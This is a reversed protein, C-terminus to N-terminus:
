AEKKYLTYLYPRPDGSPMVYTYEFHTILTFAEGLRTTLEQLSYRHVDLGACKQAGKESFEALIAYGRVKLLSRLNEFYGDIDSEATLFHLVARDIWIDIKLNLGHVPEAIDQCLWNIQKSKEGLRVRTRELAENSIDNLVLTAETKALDDCLMSTGAGALFLTSKKWEPILNLLELTQTASKEYWGMKTDETKIFISNWHESLAKM